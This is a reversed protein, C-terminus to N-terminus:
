YTFQPERDTIVMGGAELERRIFKPLSFMGRHATGDYFRLEGDVRRSLREEVEEPSPLTIGEGALIFGWSGGFSPVEAQYPFVSPWVERLTRHINVYLQFSPLRSPGAQVCIIGGPSLKERVTLYFERTFLLYSPGGEVPDTIDMIVVDYRDENRSLYGRADDFVLEVRGDDFSNRHWSPLFSRCIEVVEKDIDVM